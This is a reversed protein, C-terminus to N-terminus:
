SHDTDLHEVEKFGYHKIEGKRTELVLMGTTEVQVPRAEFTGSADRYRNWRHNGFLRSFYDSELRATMGQRLSEYRKELFTCLLNLCTETEYEIGTLLRLSVASSLDRGFTSQNINLGIGAVTHTIQNGLVSHEILIGGIKRNEAYIDNPWKILPNPIYLTLFDTIGLSVAESLLFQMEPPLFHPYLILSFTLNKGAESEWRNGAQGRGASQFGAWVLTGEPIGSKGAILSAYNNTSDVMDFYRRNRGIYNTEMAVPITHKSM